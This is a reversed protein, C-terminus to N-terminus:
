RIHFGHVTGSRVATNCSGAAQVALCRVYAGIQHYCATGAVWEVWAECSQRFAVRGSDGLCALTRPSGRTTWGSTQSAFARARSRLSSRAASSGDAATASRGDATFAAALGSPTGYVRVLDRRADPFHSFTQGTFTRRATRTVVEQAVHGRRPAPLRCRRQLAGRIPGLGVGDCRCLM